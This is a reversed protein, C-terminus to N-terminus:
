LTCGAHLERKAEVYARHAQEATDFVGIHIQKGAVQISSRFGHKYTYAGLLGTSKNDRRAARQNEKNLKSSASRLNKWHNSKGIRHDIEHDPWSGTMYLWALRHAYYREGDIGIVVYGLTKHLSGASQGLIVRHGTRKIWVFDGNLPDYYLVERLRKATLM